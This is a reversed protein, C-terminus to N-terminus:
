APVPSALSDASSRNEGFMHALLQGEALGARSLDSVLRSDRMILIRGCLAILEDLESSVMLISAGEAALQRILRYIDLKAGVDVGRTPEDLLILRPEAALARAFVVKQQNGGSLQRVRQKVGTFKLRVAAGLRRSLANEETGNLFTKLLSLRDLHPITINHSVRNGLFLSQSRREEPLYAIGRAWAETPSLSQLPEGDLSITGATLRHIGFLSYLLESRGSGALGAIGVIEGPALDFSAQSIAETKLDRVSLRPVATPSPATITVSPSEATAAHRGTMEAILKSKDTDEIQQTNIVRGDRMVTVRQAIRFLEDLRHTVYLLAYGRERLRAVVEFLLEVESSNLAATPEDMVYILPRAYTADGIFASAIKALMADGSSLNSAQRRINIHVIGLQQLVNRAQRHLERWNVFAGAFRPLPNNIFLNEAVSLSPVINLEQHIFRLGLRYATASDPINVAAGNLRTTMEDPAELGALLKILTSKGAGNEGILGLVEGALLDIRADVLANVGDYAKSAHRVEFLPVSVSMSM